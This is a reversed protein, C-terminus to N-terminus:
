SPRRRTPTQRQWGLLEEAHRSAVEANKAAQRYERQAAAVRKAEDRYAKAVPDSRSGALTGDPNRLVRDALPAPKRRRPVATAGSTQRRQTTGSKSTRSSKSPQSGGRKAAAKKAPAPKKAPTKVEVIRGDKEVRMRQKRVVGTAPDRVALTFTKSFTLGLSKKLAAKTPGDYGFAVRWLVGPKHRKKTPM